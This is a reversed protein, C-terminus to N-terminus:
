CVVKSNMQLIELADADRPKLRKHTNPVVPVECNGM